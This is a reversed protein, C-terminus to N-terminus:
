LPHNHPQHKTKRQSDPSQRRHGHCDGDGTIVIVELEPRALKVGTAFALARGHTTHLTNFDM